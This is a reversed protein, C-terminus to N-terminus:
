NKILDLKMKFHIVRIERSICYIMLVLVVSCGLNSFVESIMNLRVKVQLQLFQSEYPHVLRVYTIWSILEPASIEDQTKEVM